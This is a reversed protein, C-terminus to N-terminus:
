TGSLIRTSIGVNVSIAGGLTSNEAVYQVEMNKNIRMAKSDIVERYGSISPSDIVDTVYEEYGLYFSAWWFWPADGDGFPSWLVTAQTGEPVLILGVTILALGGPAQAGDVYGTLSGRTRMITEPLHQAAVLQAGITGAAFAQFVHSAPLWHTFDIKKGSRRRAM